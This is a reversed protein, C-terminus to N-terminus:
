ISTLDSSAPMRPQIQISPRYTNRVRPRLGAHGAQRDHSTPLNPPENWLPQANNESDREGRSMLPKNRNKNILDIVDDHKGALRQTDILEERVSSGSKKEVAAGPLTPNSM